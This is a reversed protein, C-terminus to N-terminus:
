DGRPALSLAPEPAERSPKAARAREHLRAASMGLRLGSLVLGRHRGALPALEDDEPIDVEVTALRGLGWARSAATVVGDTRRQVTRFPLLAPLPPGGPSGSVTIGREEWRLKRGGAEDSWMLTGLEKPFGWNVRGGVRSDASNVVM